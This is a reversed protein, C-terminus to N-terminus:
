GICGCSILQGGCVPCREIDCGLVHVQGKVVRCDECSGDREELADGYRVRRYKIGAIRITLQSQAAKIKEPWGKIVRAGNYLVFEKNM